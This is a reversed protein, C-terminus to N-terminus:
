QEKMLHTSALIDTHAMHAAGVLPANTGLAAQVIPINCLPALLGNRLGQRLPELIPEGLTGVGGGIVVASVDIANIFAALGEGVCRLSDTIVRRALDEGEHYRRMVERLDKAPTGSVATNYSRTLSPGSGINEIIDCGNGAPVPALLYAIEGRIDHPSQPLQGGTVLAGGIGTGISVFLVDGTNGAAAGHVAEGLGMVRVDNHVSVPLDLAARLTSAIDTGAWGPMTPGAYSICGTRTDVVGPAGVGVCTPVYGDANANAIISIAADIIERVVVRPGDAARTPRTARGHVTTPATPDVFGTAIKTGGIDIAIACTKNMASTM